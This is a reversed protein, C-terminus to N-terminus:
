LGWAHQSVKQVPVPLGESHRLLVMLGTRCPWIRLGSTFAAFSDSRDM